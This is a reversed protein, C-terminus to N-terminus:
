PSSRASPTTACAPRGSASTTARTTPSCRRSAAHAGAALDARDLREAGAARGRHRQHCRVRFAREGQEIVVREVVAGLVAGTLVAGAISVGLPLPTFPIISAVLGTGALAPTVPTHLVLGVYCSVTAMEGQAVNLPGHGM